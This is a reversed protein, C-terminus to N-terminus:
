KVIAAMRAPDKIDQYPYLGRHERVLVTLSGEPMRAYFYLDLVVLRSGQIKPSPHDRPYKPPYLELVDKM